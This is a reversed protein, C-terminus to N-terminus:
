NTNLVDRLTNTLTVNDRHSKVAFRFYSSDLGHYNGCSRVLIHRDLLPQYIDLKHISRVLVYNAVSPYVKFEGLTTLTHTLYDREKAVYDRTRLVYDVCGLASVGCVQAVTSVAWAQGCLALNHALATDNTIVYGLRIGAMSYIKTFAKIIVLRLGQTNFYRKFSLGGQVFDLFCEDVVLTVGKSICTTVISDMLHPSVVAGTPNNPNCLYFVDVLPLYDLIDDQITFDYRENLPYRVVECGCQLSREYEAFTPSLVLVRKPELVNGLRFILDDAGNGCVVNHIPVGEVQSLKTRLTTCDTDPYTQFSDVSEVIADKIAKPMGLPNLNVSYDLRVDKDYIGGGHCYHSGNFM